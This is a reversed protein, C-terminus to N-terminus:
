EGKGDGVAEIKWNMNTCISNKPDKNDLRRKCSQYTYNVIVVALFNM